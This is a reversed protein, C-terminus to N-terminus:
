AITRLLFEDSKLIEEKRLTRDEEVIAYQIFLKFRLDNQLTADQIRVGRLIFLYDNGACNLYVANM